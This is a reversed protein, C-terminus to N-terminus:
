CCTRDLLTPSDDEEVSGGDEDAVVEDLEVLRLEEELLSQFQAVFEPTPTRGERAYRLQDVRHAFDTRKKEVCQVLSELVRM